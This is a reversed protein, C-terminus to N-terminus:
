AVPVVRRLYLRLNFCLNLSMEVTSTTAGGKEAAGRKLTKSMFLRARRIGALDKLTARM